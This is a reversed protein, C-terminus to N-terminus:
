LGDLDDPITGYTGCRAFASTRCVTPKTGSQTAFRFEAKIIVYESYLKTGAWVRFNRAPTITLILMNYVHQYEENQM